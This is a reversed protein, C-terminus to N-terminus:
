PAPSCDPSRSRRECYWRFSVFVHNMAGRWFASLNTAGAFLGKGYAKLHLSAPTKELTDGTHRQLGQGHNDGLKDQSM